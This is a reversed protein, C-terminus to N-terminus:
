NGAGWYVRQVSRELNATKTLLENSHATKLYSKVFLVNELQDAPGTVKYEAGSIWKFLDRKGSLPMFADPDEILHDRGTRTFYTPATALGLEHGPVLEWRMNWRAYGTHDWLSQDTPRD